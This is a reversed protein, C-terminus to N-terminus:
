KGGTDGKKAMGEAARKRAAKVEAVGDGAPDMERAADLGLVCEAFGGSACAAMAKARLKSAEAILDANREVTPVPPVEPEPKRVVPPPAPSRAALYIGAGSIAIAAAVGLVRAFSWTVVRTAHPILVAPEARAVWPEDTSARRPADPDDSAAGSAAPKAMFADFAAGARAHMAAVDVGDRALEQKVEDDSMALVEALAEKADDDSLESDGAEAVAANWRAIPDRQKEIM